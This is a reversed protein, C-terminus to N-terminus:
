TFSSSVVKRGLEGSPSENRIGGEELHLVAEELAIGPLLREFWDKFAGGRATGNGIDVM